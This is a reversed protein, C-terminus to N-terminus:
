DSVHKLRQEIMARTNPDSGYQRLAIEWKLREPSIPGAAQLIQRGIMDRAWQFMAQSRAVRDKPSLADMRSQYQQDVISPM